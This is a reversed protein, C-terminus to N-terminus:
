VNGFGQIYFKNFYNFQAKKKGLRKNIIELLLHGLIINTSGTKKIIVDFLYWLTTNQQIQYIIYKPRKM